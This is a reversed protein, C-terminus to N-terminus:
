VNFLICEGDHAAIRHDYYLGGAQYSSRLLYSKFTPPNIIMKPYVVYSDGQVVHSATIITDLGELRINNLLTKIIEPYMSWYSGAQTKVEHRLGHISDKVDWSFSERVRFDWVALNRCGLLKAIAIENVMGRVTSKEIEEETRDRSRAPHSAIQAALAEAIASVEEHSISISTNLIGRFKEIHNM